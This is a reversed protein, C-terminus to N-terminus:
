KNTECLKSGLRFQLKIVGNLSQQNEKFYYRSLKNSVNNYM